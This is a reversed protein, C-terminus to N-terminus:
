REHMCAGHIGDGPEPGPRGTLLWCATGFGAVVVLPGDLPLWHRVRALHLRSKRVPMGAPALGTASPDPGATITAAASM